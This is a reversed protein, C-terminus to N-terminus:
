AGGFQNVEAICEWHRPLMAKNAMAEILPLMECFDDITKKLDSFAEWERLAKPLRRCRNQFEQLETNIKEIDVETWLIDQYGNVGTEVADYLGYLGQLLRLEKRVRHVEPYESVAMGFLAEGGTCTEYTRWLEDFRRQFVGM